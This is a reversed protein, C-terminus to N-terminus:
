GGMGGWLKAILKKPAELIYEGIPTLIALIVLLLVIAIIIAITTYSVDGKKFIKRMVVGQKM